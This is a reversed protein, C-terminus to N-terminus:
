KNRKAGNVLEEYIGLMKRAAVPWQFITKARVAGSKGFLEAMRENQLLFLIKQTFAHTTNKVVFGNRENEVVEPLAGSNSVVVPKGCAMAEAPSFGFGEMESPFVFVDALNYFLIKEEEAIFGTFIVKESIENHRVYRELDSKLPGSGAIILKLPDSFQGLLELFVDILFFVKKRKKLGGLFLLVKEDKLGLRYKLELSKPIPKYKQNVGNLVAHIKEDSIGFQNMLQRKSFESPVILADCKKIINKEILGNLLDPDIHHHHGVVPYKKKSQKNFWLVGPGTYRLSHIRLLDFNCSREVKKLYHPWFWNAVYWRLGKTLAVEHIHFEPFDKSYLKGKAMIIEFQAGLRALNKLIEREYTEGGSNSEPSFGCHPSAIKM